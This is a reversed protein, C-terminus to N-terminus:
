DAGAIHVTNFCVAPTVIAGHTEQRDGIGRIRNFIEFVNGAIMCDKVRGRLQGGEVLFGLGVNVSFEGALVNSQGGGIVEDVVLGHGIGALLDDFSDAGPDLVLNTADPGPMAAFNRVANGTTEADMMGATQLDFLYNRLIGKEFLPTQRTPVGDGDHPASGDGHDRTGDDYLTVRPDVVQEGLRGALPSAGKQVLKGNVAAQFFQLLLGVAKATFLVPCAGTPADSETEAQRIDAIVKPVYRGFDHVLARSSDGESVWLFSGDRIRLASLHCDFGTSDHEVDLGSTNALRSRGAWKSIEVNCLVDAYAALVEAIADRGLEIGREIRFTAVAPDHVAVDPLPAAGPFTFRAEQGYRASELAQAVLRDPQSLDTTSAFGLRGDAILRVSAGRRSKTHIYKLQNNEFQVPRSESEELCVEVAEAQRSALELLREVV